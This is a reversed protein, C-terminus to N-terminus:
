RRPRSTLRSAARWSHVTCTATVCHRTRHQSSYTNLRLCHRLKGTPEHDLRSSGPNRKVSAQRELIDHLGDDIPIRRECRSKANYRQVVIQRNTWDIDTFRLSRLEGARMGTVLLAYWISRWPEGSSKLLAEVEDPELHRGNKPRNHAIRNFGAIPNSGIIPNSKLKRHRGAAWNLASCLAMVEYNATAPSVNENVRDQQYSAIIEYSLQSAKTVAIKDLIVGIAQEYRAYTTSALFPRCQGLFRNTIEKLPYDNDHEDFKALDARRQEKHLITKAAEFDTSLYKRVRVGGTRFDSWYGKRGARRVM